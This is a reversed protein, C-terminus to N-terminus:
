AGAGGRRMRQGRAALATAAAAMVFIALVIFGLAAGFPWNRVAGFQMGILNGVMMNKGGGLLQPIVYAGISPVFVLLCGAIIGPMTLPIIVRRLAKSSNAGLDYAAEVLRWDLKELSTYIPLTM